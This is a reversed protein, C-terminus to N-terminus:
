LIVIMLDDVFAAESLEIFPQTNDQEITQNAPTLQVKLGQEELKKSISKM